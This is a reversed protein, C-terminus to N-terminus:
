RDRNYNKLAQTGIATNYNGALSGSAGTGNNYMASDGIATVAVRDTNKALTGRGIAIVGTSTTFKGAGRGFLVNDNTLLGVKNNNVKFSLPMNTTTGIFNVATDTSANGTLLWGTGGGTSLNSWTSGTYYWFSSTTNDFVLLGAAPSAIATRQVSSMRPVLIGKATSKVDLMASNDPLSGDTSIAVQGHVNIVLAVFLLILIHKM